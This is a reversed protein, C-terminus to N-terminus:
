KMIKKDQVVYVGKALGELSAARAKLLCGNLDYVNAPWVVGANGSMEMGDISILQGDEDYELINFRKPAYSESYATRGESSLYWRYATLTSTPTSTVLSGGGMSFWGNDRLVQGPISTYVGKFVFLMTTTSCDVYGEEAPFLSTNEVM